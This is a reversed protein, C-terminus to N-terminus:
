AAKEKNNKLKEITSTTSYGEYLPMIDVKGGYAQVVKAEPLQDVTYDGGKFIVDPRIVDLLSSPTNDQSKEQAGFFVVMDVSGLAAMVTARAQEDNVPRDDGKLIKVSRDHNLGIVLKDCRARAQAVYNVHGYHLIDFCGNTFGVTHGAAQWIKVQTAAEQWDSIIPSIFHDIGSSVVGEDDNMLEKGDIAATGIKGVVVGAAKNALTAAAVLDMGAGLGAALTAVVTDGAGSVDFVDRVEASIHLAPMGDGPIVSMGEESRTAVINRIGCQKILTQAAAVIQDDSDVPLRSAEHLEKRNPTIAFVDKYISYDHGKPDALVPINKKVAADIVARMIDPRLVGKGYDSLIVAQATQMAKIAAAVMKEALSDDVPHTKEVDVRVIQESGAVYRTKLITPRTADVFMCGTDIGMAAVARILAQGPADDGVVSIIFPHAKLGALNALVNGAGGLMRNEHNVALVPVPAEPSQRRVDGYVFRDLMIDGIVLVSTGAISTLPDSSHM